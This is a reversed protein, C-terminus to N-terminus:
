TKQKNRKEQQLIQSMSSVSFILTLNLTHAAEKQTKHDTM